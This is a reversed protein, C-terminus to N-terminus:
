PLPTVQKVETALAVPDTTPLRCVQKECVYATPKGDKLPKEAVLPVVEAVAPEADPTLVAFVANPLFTTRLPEMLATARDGEPRVVVIEKPTDLRFDLACLMRPMSSPTSTLTPAAAMLARDAVVRWADDTTLEHLRLANQVAVSSGAPEAGDYDPKERVLLKEHDDATRFWGGAPDAFRRDLTRQLAIARSLWRPDGTTEFLDILGAVLFAYDDLFAPGSATGDLASRYLRDGDALTGLAFEAARVASATFGPDDLVRGGRAMASIALGNWAAIVKRDVLPRVRKARAEYLAALAADFRARGDEPVPQKLHLVGRGDLDAQGLHTAVFALTDPDLVATMEDPTWTYFRGEHGESDADFASWFGGDPDTMERIMFELTRRATAAFDARGAAQYGELYAIALLAQDPLMKEFHPVNWADDTAYRHFGGGVQDHIGGREMAELTRVVAQLAEPDGTRRHWRLLLEIAVTRPFKPASGFGGHEPEFTALTQVSGLKLAVAGPLTEAAPRTGLARELRGVLDATITDIRAPDDRYATALTQLFELFGAKRGRDGARPPFYTGGYFPKGDPTLWVNLPWGGGVGMTQVATMYVGDVDPRQERDVKIAVYNDNLYAAIEEDEFSEEEMVHCWHCTAYGISLFIPKNQARAAAFAEEGWPYWNVPNHAHQRLYPSPESALRNTYKPSGDPLLHRTRLPESSRTPGPRHPVVLALVVALVALSRVLTPWM